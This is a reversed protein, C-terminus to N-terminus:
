KKNFCRVIENRLGAYLYGGLGNQKSTPLKNYSKCIDAMLTEFEVDSLGVEDQTNILADVLSKNTGLKILKSANKKRLESYQIRDGSNHDIGGIDVVKIGKFRIAVVKRSLKLPEWEFRLNTKKIIEETAPSLVRRNFEKYEKVFIPSSDLYTHLDELRIDEGGMNRIQMILTFLQQAYPNKLMNYEDRPFLTFRDKIQWFFPILAPDIRGSIVGKKYFVISFLNAKIFGNDGTKSDRTRISVKFNSLEDCAKDLQEYVSGGKGAFELESINISRTLIKDPELDDKNVPISSSIAALIQGSVYHKFRMRSRIVDNSWKVTNAIKFKDPSLLELPLQEQHMKKDTRM